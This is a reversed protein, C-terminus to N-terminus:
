PSLFAFASLNRLVGFAFIIVFLPIVYRAPFFDGNPKGRMRNLGFWAGRGAAVFLGTVFLANDHLATVLEGHLLAYCARTSGCGPCNLGTVRHFLCVPYFHHSSPDFLFLVAMGVAVVVVLAIGALRRNFASIKPPAANM